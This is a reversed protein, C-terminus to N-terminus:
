SKKNTSLQVSQETYGVGCKFAGCAFTFAV